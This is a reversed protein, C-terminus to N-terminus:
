DRRRSRMGFVFSILVIVITVVAAIWLARKSADDPSVMSRLLASGAYSYAAVTPIAGIGSAILLRHLSVDALGAVYGMVALPAVPIVRLRLLTGVDDHNRLQRLLKHEGFLRTLPRRAVRHAIEYAFATGLMFGFWAVGAGVWRGFIAGCLLTLIAAPLCLAVAVAYLIAFWVVVGPLLRFRQVTEFFRQRRDLEFYGLKWAILLATVAILPVAAIRVISAVRKM